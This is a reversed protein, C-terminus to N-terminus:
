NNCSISQISNIFFSTLFFICAIFSHQQVLTVSPHASFFFIKGDTFSFAGLAHSSWLNLRASGGVSHTLPMSPSELPAALLPQHFKMLTADQLM